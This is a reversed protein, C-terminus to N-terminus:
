QGRKLTVAVCFAVILLCVILGCGISTRRGDPSSDAEYASVFITILFEFVEFM